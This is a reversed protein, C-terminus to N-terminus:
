LLSSCVMIASPVVHYQLVIANYPSALADEATIKAAALFEEFAENTPAFLTAPATLISLTENLGSAQLATYIESIENYNFFFSDRLFTCGPFNITGGAQKLQRSAFAPAVFASCLVVAVLALRMIQVM